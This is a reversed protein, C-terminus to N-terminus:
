TQDGSVKVLVYGNKDRSQMTQRRAGVIVLSMPVACIAMAALVPHRSGWRRIAHRKEPPLQALVSKTFGAPLQPHALMCLLDTSYKLEDFHARCEACNALHEYLVREEQETAEQDLVKNMLSLYKKSACSM